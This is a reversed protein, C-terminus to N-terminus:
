DQHLLFQTVLIIPLTFCHLPVYAICFRSRNICCRQIGNIDPYVFYMSGPKFKIEFKQVFSIEKM